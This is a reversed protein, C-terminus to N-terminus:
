PKIEERVYILEGDVITLVAHAKPIESFEATMLDVSFASLDAKKGVAITGLDNEQFSAIAPWLTFMKLAESRSIAEEGHWNPGQFGSLDARAVAAYFEILPDGREVPADSGGPVIVGSDILSRWAYAGVLRKEGLRAPAFHMDGIAHSPQMSPIVGLTSFRPIDQPNIIQAHEIRWRSEAIKRDDSPVEAFVQGFWDLVQRNGGDGIAHMNVQFGQKLARRMVPLVNDAKAQFLGHTDADSYPELLAAGRSGLAGDGYMKIARTIIRGNHSSRAGSQFLKDADKLDISNYVRIGLTGSDSLAELQDLEGWAVSMSHTGSWGYAAYVEAGIKLAEKKSEDTEAPMLPLILGMAADVLMGTPEGLANKLIEGGFPAQTDSTIGVARLAATNAVLAHGDARRLVVPREREIQDLDWRSPFRKEPWHTEIWGRGFIVPDDHSIIWAKLKDQVDKISAIGELNLSMERQGIGLLHSHADVFGPFLASGALDIVMTQAGTLAEADAKNGVYVFRGKRTAVAEVRPNDDDGTYIPGGWIVMDAVINPALNQPSTEQSDQSYAVNTLCLATILATFLSIVSRKMSKRKAIFCENKEISSVLSESDLSAKM